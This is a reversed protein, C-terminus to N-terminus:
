RVRDIRFTRAECLWACQDYSRPGRTAKLWRLGLIPVPRIMEVMGV